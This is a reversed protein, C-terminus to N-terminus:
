DADAELVAALSRYDASQYACSAHVQVALACAAWRGLVYVDGSVTVM